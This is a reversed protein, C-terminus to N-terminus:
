LRRITSKVTSPESTELPISKNTKIKDFLDEDVVSNKTKDDYSIENNEILRKADEVLQSEKQIEDIKAFVEDLATRPESM